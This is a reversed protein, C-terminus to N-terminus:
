EVSTDLPEKREALVSNAEPAESIPERSTEREIAQRIVESESLGRMKAIRKILMDEASRGAALLAMVAMATADANDLTGFGDDWSGGAGQSGELWAVAAEPVGQGAAVLGLIALAQKFPDGAYAGDDGLHAALDATYDHGAFDTPDVGAADLALVIKGAQGGDEAAM